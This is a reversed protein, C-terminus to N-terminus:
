PQVERSGYSFGGMGVPMGRSKFFEICAHDVSRGAMNEPVVQCGVRARRVAKRETLEKVPKLPTKM